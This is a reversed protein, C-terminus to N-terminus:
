YQQSTSKWGCDASAILCDSCVFIGSDGPQVSDCLALVVRDKGILELYPLFPQFSTLFWVEEITDTLSSIPPLFGSGIELVPHAINQEFNIPVFLEPYVPL